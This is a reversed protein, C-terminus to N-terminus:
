EPGVQPPHPARRERGLAEQGPSFGHLSKRALSASRRVPEIGVEVGGPLDGTHRDVTPPIHERVQRLARDSGAGGQNRLQVRAGGFARLPEGDGLSRGVELDRVPQQTPQETIPLEVRGGDADSPAPSKM